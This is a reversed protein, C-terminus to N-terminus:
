MFCVTATSITTQIPLIYFFNLSSNLALFMDGTMVSIRYIICNASSFEFFIDLTVNIMSPTQCVIYVVVIIVMVLTINNQDHNSHSTMTGRERHAVRLDIILHVNFFILTILPIAYRLISYLVGEYVYTYLHVGELEFFRPVNFAFAACTMIMIQFLINRKTCLRSAVLPHCVAVYRNGAVLVIMWVSCTYITLFIPWLYQWIFDAYVSQVVFGYILSRINILMFVTLFLNDALALAKLLYSGVNQCGGKHLVVFSLTNGVLGITCVICGIVIVVLDCLLVVAMTFHKNLLPKVLQRGSGLELRCTFM